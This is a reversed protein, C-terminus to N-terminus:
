KKTGKTGQTGTKGAKMAAVAKQYYERARAMDRERAAPDDQGKARERYLLNIYTLSEGPTAPELAIARELAAIGRDAIRIRAAGAVGKNKYLHEWCLTGVLYRAKAEGPLLAARKEYWKLASKFDGAKSAVQGLSSVVKVDKPDRRHQRELFRIAERSRGADLLTQLYFKPGRDDDPALKMYTRFADAAKRSYRVSTSGDTASALSMAAYGAHLHLLPLDPDLRAAQEFKALALDFKGARYLENGQKALGRAEVKTCGASAAAVGAVALLVCLRGM